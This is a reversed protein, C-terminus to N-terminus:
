LITTWWDYFREDADIGFQLLVIGGHPVRLM